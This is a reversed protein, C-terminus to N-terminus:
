YWGNTDRLREVIVTMEGAFGKIGVVEKKHGKRM